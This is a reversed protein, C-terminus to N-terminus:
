RKMMEVFENFDIEGDGNADIEKMVGAIYAANVAAEMTGDELVKRLEAMTIRGDGDLDFTRFASWMVEERAYVQKDITAALFETYDIQGSGDGDVEEMLQKLDSPIDELGSRELGTKLETLTLTGDKNEDLAKFSERLMLIEKENLQGAIVQLAAKKLKNQGKFDKLKDVVTINLGTSTPARETVWVHNVAQEATYRDSVKMKLCKKILDKADPSIREWDEPPFEVNGAKVRKLVISDTDGHFPPYGCLLVYMVVGCSWVDALENYNGQLVQPAVYYPTGAKTTLSQGPQFTCSLGFDLLKLTATEIPEKSGFIFNEPKIDRHTMSQQHMYFIAMFIQEMLIAAQVETFNGVEVIRDFLEGGDCLEMVLYINRHDQFTEYLKIINPHDLQKM